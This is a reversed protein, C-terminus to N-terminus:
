QALESIRTSLDRCLQQLADRAAPTGNIEALRAEYRAIQQGLADRLFQRLFAISTYNLETIPQALPAVQPIGGLQDIVDALRRAEAADFDAIKQMQAVIPKDEDSVYPESDLVYRALSHYRDAFAENLADIAKHDLTDM